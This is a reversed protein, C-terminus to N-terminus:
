HDIYTTTQISDPGSSEQWTVIVDARMVNGLPAPLHSIQWYRQYGGTAGVTENTSATPHRGDALDPDNVSLARLGEAKELAYYTGGTRMRDKVQERSATPFLKAIALIGTSLVVLVIMLELLSYGRSSADRSPIM